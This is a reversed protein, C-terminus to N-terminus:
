TERKLIFIYIYIASVSFRTNTTGSPPLVTYSARTPFVDSTIFTLDPTLYTQSCWPVSCIIPGFDLRCAGSRLIKIWWFIFKLFPNKTTIELNWKKKFLYSLASISIYFLLQIYIESSVYMCLFQACVCMYIYIWLEIKICINETVIM